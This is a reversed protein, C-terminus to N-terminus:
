GPLCVDVHNEGLISPSSSYTKFLNHSRVFSSMWWKQDVNNRKQLQKEGEDKTEQFPFFAGLLLM